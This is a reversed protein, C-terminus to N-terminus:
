ARVGFSIVPRVPRGRTVTPPKRKLVTPEGVITAVVTRPTTGPVYFAKAVFIFFAPIKMGPRELKM